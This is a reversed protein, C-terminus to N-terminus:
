LPVERGPGKAQEAALAAEGLGWGCLGSPLPNGIHTTMTVRRALETEKTALNRCRVLVNASSSSPYRWPQESIIIFNAIENKGTEGGRRTVESNDGM